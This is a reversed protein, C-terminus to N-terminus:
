VLQSLVVILEPNILVEARKPFLSKLQEPNNFGMNLLYLALFIVVNLFFGIAWLSYAFIAKFLTKILNEKFIGKYLYVHVLVGLILSFVQVYWHFDSFIFYLPIILTSAVMATGYGFSNIVLHEAFNLKMKRFMLKTGLALSPISVVFFISMYNKMIGNLLDVFANPEQNMEEAMEAQVQDYLGTSFMLFLQITLWLFLYRFPHIYPRTIGNLYNHVVRGPKKFMWLTTHWLGNEFNVMVGFWHLISDKLVLRNTIKKQGCSPCYSGEYQHGCNKCAFIEVAEKEM